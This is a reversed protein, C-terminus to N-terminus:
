RSEAPVTSWDSIFYCCRLGPTSPFPLLPSLFLAFSYFAFFDALVFRYLLLFSTPCQRQATKRKRGACPQAGVCGRAHGLVWPPCGFWQSGWLLGPLASSVCGPAAFGGLAVMCVARGRLQPPGSSAPPQLLGRRGWPLEPAAVAAQRTTNKEQSGGLGRLGPESCNRAAARLRWTRQRHGRPRQAFCDM